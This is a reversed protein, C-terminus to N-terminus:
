LKNSVKLYKTEKLRFDTQSEILNSYSKQWETQAELLNVLPEMGLEYNDQSVKLNESAQELAEKSMGVRSFADKMDLKAQEMELTLLQAARQLELIKIEREAKEAKVRNNGEGWHTIPIKISGMLTLGSSTYDDADAIGVGMYSYGATVGASPLFDSKVMNVQESQMDIQKQLLDYEVRDTVSVDTFLDLKPDSSYLMTDVATISSNLPLGVIRCLSMRTLELGSKAKQLTLTASNLNVQAKLLRNRNTMGVEYSNEIVNVLEELLDKYKRALDVKERTSVYLWYAQDSEYIADIRKLEKSEKAMSIGINAMSNAATIKGGTYIPQTLNLTALYGGNITLDIPLYSYSNFIPVGDSGILTEGTSPDLALNPTLGGTTPDLNYTPLYLENSYEVKKYGGILNASINPLYQTKAVRKMATAKDLTIDSIKVIESSEIAMARCQELTLRNQATLSNLNAILLTLLTVRRVLKYRNYTRM